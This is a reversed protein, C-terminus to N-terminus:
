MNVPAPGHVLKQCNLSDLCRKMIAREEIGKNEEEEGMFTNKFNKRSFATKNVMSM